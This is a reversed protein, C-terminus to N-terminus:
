MKKEQQKPQYKGMKPLLEGKIINKESESGSISFTVNQRLEAIKPDLTITVTANILLFYSVIIAAVFLIIPVLFIM